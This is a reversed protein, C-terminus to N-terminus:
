ILGLIKKDSESLMDLSITQKELCKELAEKYEQDNLNTSDDMVLYDDKVASNKM